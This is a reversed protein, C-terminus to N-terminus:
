LSAGMRIAAMDDGLDMYAKAANEYAQALFASQPYHDLFDEAVRLREEPPVGKLLDGFAKREGADQM